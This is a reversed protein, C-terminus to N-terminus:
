PVGCRARGWCRGGGSSWGLGLGGGFRRGSRSGRGGLLRSLLRKCGTGGGHSVGAQCRCGDFAAAGAASRRGWPRRNKQASPLASILNPFVSQRPPTAAVFFGTAWHKWSRRASASRRAKPSRIWGIWDLAFLVPDLFNWRGWKSQRPEPQELGAVEFAVDEEDSKGGSQTSTEPSTANEDDHEEARDAKKVPSRSGDSAESPPPAAFQQRTDSALRDLPSVVRVDDQNVVHTYIMTTKTDSHGLLEQITRIDTGQRLLHTAFSHRFTHSSIHKAIGTREVASRLQNPFTDRHLHHRHM